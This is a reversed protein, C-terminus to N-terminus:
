RGEGRAERRLPVLPLGYWRTWLAGCADSLESAPREMLELYREGVLPRRVRRRVVVSGELGLEASLGSLIALAAYWEVSGSSHQNLLHATLLTLELKVLEQARAAQSLYASAEFNARVLGRPVAGDEGRSVGASELLADPVGFEPGRRYDLVHQAEHREISRAVVEAMRDFTERLAGQELKRQSARLERVEHDALVESLGEYVEQDIALGEPMGFGLGRKRLEVEWVVFQQRRAALRAGIEVLAEGDFPLAGRIAERAIEGARAQVAAQWESGLERSEFDLLPMSAGDALAPGVYGVVQSEVKERLVVAVPLDERTYGLVAQDWNLRDVRSLRVTEVPAGEPGAVRVREDVSFVFIGVQTRDNDRDVDLDGDLFWPVEAADFAENVARIAGRFRVLPEADTPVDRALAEAADVLGTLAEAAAPGMADLADPALARARAEDVAARLAGVQGSGMRGKAAPAWRDLAVVLDPLGIGLAAGVPGDTVAAAPRLAFFGGVAVLSFLAVAVATPWRSAGPRAVRAAGDFAARAEEVSAPEEGGSVRCWAWRAVVGDDGGAAPDVALVARRWAARVRRRALWRVLPDLGRLAEDAAGERGERAASELAWMAARRVVM